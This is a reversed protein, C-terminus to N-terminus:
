AIGDGGGEGDVHPVVGFLRAVASTRVRYSVCRVMIILHSVMCAGYGGGLYTLDLLVCRVVIILAVRFEVSVRGRVRVWTRVRFLRCVRRYKTM